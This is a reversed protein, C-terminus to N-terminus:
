EHQAENAHERSLAEHAGGGTCRVIVTSYCTDFALWQLPQTRKVAYLPFLQPAAFPGKRGSLFEPSSAAARAPCSSSRGATPARSASWSRSASGRAASAAARKM